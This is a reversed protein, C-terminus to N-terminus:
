YFFYSIIALKLTLVNADFSLAMQPLATNLVTSDLTDMLLGLGLIWPIRSRNQM